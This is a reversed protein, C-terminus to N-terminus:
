LFVRIKVKYLITKMNSSYSHFVFLNNFNVEFKM